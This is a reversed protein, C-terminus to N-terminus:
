KLVEIAPLTGKLLYELMAGGGTSLFGLKGGPIVDEIAAITDGGGIVAQAGNAVAKEVLHAIAHTYSTYGDEYLGTPGNWLVFKANTLLPSISAISDPGIDVIKDGELIDTPKKVMAHEDTMEVTVDVPSVFHPNSLVDFGPLEASILSRGV